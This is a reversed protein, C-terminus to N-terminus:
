KFLDDLPNKGANSPKISISRSTYAEEINDRYYSWQNASSKFNQWISQGISTYELANGGM